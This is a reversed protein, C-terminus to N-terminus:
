LMKSINSSVLCRKNMLVRFMDNEDELSPFDYMKLKFILEILLSCLFRSFYRPLRLHSLTQSVQENWLLYDLLFALLEEINYSTAQLLHLKHEKQANWYRYSNDSILFSSSPLKSILLLSFSAFSPALSQNHSGEDKMKM